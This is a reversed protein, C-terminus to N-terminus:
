VRYGRLTLLLRQLQARFTAVIGHNTEQLFVVADDLDDEDNDNSDGYDGHHDRQHGPM